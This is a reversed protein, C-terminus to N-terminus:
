KQQLFTLTIYFQSLNSLSMNCFSNQLNDFGKGIQETYKIFIAPGSSKGIRKFHIRSWADGVAWFLVDQSINIVFKSFRVDYVNVSKSLEYLQITNSEVNLDLSASNLAM